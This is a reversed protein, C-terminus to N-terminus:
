QQKNKKLKRILGKLICIYNYVAIKHGKIIHNCINKKKKLFFHNYM